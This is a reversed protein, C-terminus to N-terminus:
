GILVPDVEPSLPAHRVALRAAVRAGDVIADDVERPAFCDGVPVVRRGEKRLQQYLDTEARRAGVIVITDADARRTWGGWTHALDAGGADASQMTAEPTFEVGAAVLRPIIWAYDATGTPGTQIGIQPIPTALQVSHGASSFLDALGLAIYNGLEDFILVKHGCESRRSVAEVPTIIPAAEAGPLNERDPRLTSAGDSRWASGTAVVVADPAGTAIVEPDVEIGTKIEVGAATAATALHDVLMQWRDRGPLAGAARLQGGLLDNREYLTVRHGARAAVEAAKLGGPGGGVVTVALPATAPVSGLVERGVEPNVTCSIQQGRLARRWCGQNAGVCPRITEARGEKAKRVFDPDALSARVMGVMDAQGSDVIEAARSLDRIAGTVMVPLDGVIGKAAAAHEALHGSQGSEMPAVLQHIAHYAAGSISVYDYLGEAHILRLTAVAHEPTMARPGIFEEFSLKLGVPYDTGVQERVARGVEIVVRARGEPGGGYEDDRTNTLPSLFEHLLYGHAAHIEVGDQDGDRAIAAATGFAEVIALIEDQDLRHAQVGMVPSPLDGASVVAHYEDLPVTGLDQHGVHYLQTFIKCGHEHVAAALHSFEGATSPEWGRYWAPSQLSSPHVPIAGTVVMGAGGRARAALFAAYRATEFSPTHAAVLIRNAVEVTGLDLPQWLAALPDSTKHM